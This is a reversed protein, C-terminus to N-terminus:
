ELEDLFRRRTEDSPETGSYRSHREDDKGERAWRELIARIYRWNRKNREAALRFAEQIWIEPYTNAADRLEEAIVPQLLGINDEYLKFILPREEPVPTPDIPQVLVQNTRLHKELTARAQRGRESNLFYWTESNGEHEVRLALLTGRYLARELAEALTAEPPQGPRKISQLLLGDAYLEPERLYARRPQRYLRWFCHLTLKLEALDDIKPLLESFFLDPVPTFRLNGKPFGEFTKM